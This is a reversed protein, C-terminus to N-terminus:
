RVAKLAKGIKILTEDDLDGIELEWGDRDRRLVVNWNPM